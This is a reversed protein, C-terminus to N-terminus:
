LVPRKLIQQPRQKLCHPLCTRRLRSNIPTPRLLFQGCCEDQLMANIKEADSGNPFGHRLSGVDLIGPVPM